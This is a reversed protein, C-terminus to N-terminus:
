KQGPNTMVQLRGRGGLACFSQYLDIDEKGRLRTRRFTIGWTSMESNKETDTTATLTIHNSKNPLERGGREAVGCVNM